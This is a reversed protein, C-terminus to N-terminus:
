EAAHRVRNVEGWAVSAVEDNYRKSVAQAIIAQPLGQENALKVPNTEGAVLRKRDFQRSDFPYMLEIAALEALIESQTANDNPDHQGALRIDLILNKITEVGDVSWDEEEEIVIHCIEKVVTFRLWDEDLSRSVYVISQSGYEAILGRTLMAGYPVARMVIEREYMQSVIDRLTDVSIKTPIGGIAYREYEERVQRVKRFANVTKTLDIYM